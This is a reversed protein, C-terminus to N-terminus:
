NCKSTVSASSQCYHVTCSYCNTEEVVILRSLLHTLLVSGYSKQKSGKLRAIYM